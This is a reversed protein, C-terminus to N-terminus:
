NYYSHPLLIEHTNCWDRYKLLAAKSRAVEQVKTVNMKMNPYKNVPQTEFANRRFTVPTLM